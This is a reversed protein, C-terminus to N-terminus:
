VFLKRFFEHAFVVLGLADSLTVSPLVLYAGRKGDGHIKFGQLFVVYGQAVSIRHLLLPYFYLVHFLRNFFFEMSLFVFRGDPNRTRVNGCSFESDSVASTSTPVPDLFSVLSWFPM